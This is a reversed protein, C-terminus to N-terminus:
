NLWRAQPLFYKKRVKKLLMRNRALLGDHSMKLGPRACIKELPWMTRIQPQPGSPRQPVWGVKGKYLSLLTPLTLSHTHGHELLVKNISVSIQIEYLKWTDVFTIRKKINKGWGNLFTLAMRLEHGWLSLHWGLNPGVAVTQQGILTRAWSLCILNKIVMGGNVNWNGVSKCNILFWCFGVETNWPGKTAQM